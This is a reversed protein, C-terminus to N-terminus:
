TESGLLTFVEVFLHDLGANEDDRRYRFGTICHTRSRENIRFPAVHDRVVVDHGVFLDHVNLERPVDLPLQVRVLFGVFVDGKPALRDLGVYEMVVDLAVESHDLQFLDGRARWGDRKGFVARPLPGGDPVDATGTRDVLHKADGLSLDPRHSDFVMEHTSRSPVIREPDLGLHDRRSVRGVGAVGSAWKEIAFAM